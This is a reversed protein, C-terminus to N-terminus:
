GAGWVEPLWAAGVEGPATSPLPPGTGPVDGDTDGLQAAALLGAALGLALAEALGDGDGLVEALGDGDGLAEALGDGLAEALGDGDGVADAVAVGCGVVV